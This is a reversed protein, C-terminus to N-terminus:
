QLTCALRVTGAIQGCGTGIEAITGERVTAALMRLLRGTEPTCSHAFGEEEARTIAEKVLPPFDTLASYPTM